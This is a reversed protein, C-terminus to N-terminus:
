NGYEVWKKVESGPPVVHGLVVVHSTPWDHDDSIITAWATASGLRTPNYRLAFDRSTPTVGSQLPSLDPAVNIDFEGPDPGTITFSTFHIKTAEIDGIFPGINKATIHGPIPEGVITVGFDLPTTPFLKLQESIARSEGSLPITITPHNTADTVITLTATKMAAIADHNANFVVSYVRSSGADIPTLDPGSVFTFSGANPGTITMSSITLGKQGTNSVRINLTRQSFPVEPVIYGFNFALALQDVGIKSIAAAVGGILTVLNTPSDTDNTTITLTATRSTTLDSPGAASPNFLISIVRPAGFLVNSSDFAPSFTFDSANTGSIVAGAGTFVLPNSGLNTVTVTQTGQSFYLPGLPLGSTQYLEGYNLATPAVQVSVGQLEYAGIDIFSSDFNSVGPWDVQRLFSGGRLDTTSLYLSGVDNRGKDITDAGVKPRYDFVEYPITDAVFGAISGVYDPKLM